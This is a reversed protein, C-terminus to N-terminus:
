LLRGLNFLVLSGLFLCGNIIAPGMFARNGKARFAFSVVFGLGSLLPILLILMMGGGPTCPGGPSYRDLLPVLAFLLLYFGSTMLTYKKGPTM